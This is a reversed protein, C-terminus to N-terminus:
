LSGSFLSWEGGGGGVFFLLCFFFCCGEAFLWGRKCIFLFSRSVKTFPTQACHHPISIGFPPPPLRQLLLALHEDYRYTASIPSRTNKLTKKPLLWTNLIDPIKLPLGPASKSRRTSTAGIRKFVKFLQVHKINVVFLLHCKM